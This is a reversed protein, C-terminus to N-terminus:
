KKNEAVTTTTTTSQAMPVNPASQKAVNRLNAIINNLKDPPVGIRDVWSNIAAEQAVPNQKINNYADKPLAKDIMEFMHTVAQPIQVPQPAPTEEEIPKQRKGFLTEDLFKKFEKLGMYREGEDMHAKALEAISKFKRVKHTKDNVIFHKHGEFFQSNQEGGDSPEDTEAVMPEPAKELPEFYKKVVNEEFYKTDYIMHDGNEDIEDLSCVGMTEGEPTYARVMQYNKGNITFPKSINGEADKIESLYNLKGPINLSKADENTAMITAGTDRLDNATQKLDQRKVYVTPSKKNSVTNTTTSPNVSSNTMSTNVGNQETLNNKM